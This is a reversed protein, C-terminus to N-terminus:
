QQETDKIVCQECYQPPLYKDKLAFELEESTFDKGTKIIKSCQSCIIALNGGNFKIIARDKM